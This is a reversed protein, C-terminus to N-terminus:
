VGTKKAARKRELRAKELARERQLRLLGPLVQEYRAQGRAVLSLAYLSYKDPPMGTHLYILLTGILGVYMQVAVGQPSQSLLHAFGATVKLWRFFLEIIWRCRYLYGIVWAEVELLDTLLLVWEDKTTDWVKVQRLLQRPPQDKRKAGRPNRVSMQEDAKGLYGLQDSGIRAQQDKQGLPLDQQPRFCLDKKLRLVFHSGAALIARLLDFGCYGRDMLYIVGPQLMRGLTTQESAGGPQDSGGTIAFREPLWRQVDLQLHLKAQSDISGQKDRRRQLAWAVEGAMHFSSGDAAIVQWILRELVADAHKLEPLRQRLWWVPEALISPDFRKLADSLTSRAMRRGELLDAIQPVHSLQDILRLSRCVPDFFACLLAAFLQDDHLQRNPHAPPLQQHILRCVQQIQEYM